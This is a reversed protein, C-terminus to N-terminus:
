KAVPVDRFTYELSRPNSLDIYLTLTRADLDKDPVKVTYKVRSGPSIDSTHGTPLAFQGNRGLSFSNGRGDVVDVRDLSVRSSQGGLNSAYGWCNINGPDGRDCHEGCGMRGKDVM